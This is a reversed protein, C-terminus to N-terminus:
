TRKAWDSEIITLKQRAAISINRDRRSAQAHHSPTYAPSPRGSTHGNRTM